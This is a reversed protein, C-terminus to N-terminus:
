LARCNLTWLTSVHEQQVSCVKRIDRLPFTWGTHAHQFFGPCATIHETGENDYNAVVVCGGICVFWARAASGSQRTPPLLSHRVAVRPPRKHFSDLRRLSFLGSLAPLDLTVVTLAGRHRILLYNGLRWTISPYLNGGMDGEHAAGNNM